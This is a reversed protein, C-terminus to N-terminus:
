GVVVKGGALWQQRGASPMTGHTLHLHHLGTSLNSTSLNLTTGSMHEEHVQRGMADLVALQLPGKAALGRHSPTM